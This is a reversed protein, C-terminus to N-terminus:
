GHAVVLTQWLSSVHYRLNDGRLWWEEFQLRRKVHLYSSIPVNEILIPCHDSTYYPLHWVQYHLFLRIWQMTVCTRDLGEYIRNALDRGRFWTFPHGFFGLILWAM